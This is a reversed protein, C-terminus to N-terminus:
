IRQFTMGTHIFVVAGVLEMRFGRWEVFKNMECIMSFQTWNMPCWWRRNQGFSISEINTFTYFWNTWKGNNFASYSYPVQLICHTDHLMCVCVFVNLCQFSFDHQVYKASDTVIPGSWADEWEWEMEEERMEIYMKMYVTHIHINDLYPEIGGYKDDGLMEKWDTCLRRIWKRFSQRIIQMTNLSLIPYELVSLWM